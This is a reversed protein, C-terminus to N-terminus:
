AHSSAPLGPRASQLLHTPDYNPQCRRRPYLDPPTTADEYEVTLYSSDSSWCPRAYIGTGSRLNTVSGTQSNILALDMAGGRNITAAM